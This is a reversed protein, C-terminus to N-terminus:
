GALAKDFKRHVATNVNRTTAIRNYALFTRFPMRMVESHAFGFTEVVGAVWMM